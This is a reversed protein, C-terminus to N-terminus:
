RKLIGLAAHYLKTHLFAKTQGLRDAMSYRAPPEIGKINYKKVFLSLSALWAMKEDLRDAKSKKSKPWHRSWMALSRENFIGLSQLAGSGIEDLVFQRLENRLWEGYRNNLKSRNDEPAAEPQGYPAGTRAWPIDLLNGPLLKLLHEYNADSRCAPDLSWMFGFMEPAGFMQYLPIRDDIVEMCANLQRRMYHMQMEIERYAMESRGPFRARDTALDTRIAALAGQEVSRLMFAFHNLHKDLIHPLENVRRGSYEGRGISDGYSGALVGDLGQTQSVADMAHLHVPSYEAGRDAAIIINQRLVEANLPFHRFEWGFRDAIRQAYIVDRSDDLGWTLAVVDGAYSGDEQLQRVIAAVIRSDMGGSLLIGIKKKGALFRLAEAQLRQKMEAAIEGSAMQVSGHRPLDAQQWGGAGDPRAMWPTREVGQVLTRTSLTYNKMLVGLAAVPDIPHNAPTAGSIHAHCKTSDHGTTYHARAGLTDYDSLQKHM